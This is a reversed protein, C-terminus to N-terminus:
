KLVQGPCAPHLRACAPMASSNDSSSHLTISGWKGFRLCRGLRLPPRGGMSSRRARVPMRKTRRWPNGHPASGFSSPQPEPTLQQRRNTAQCAAPTHARTQRARSSASWRSSRSCHARTASSPEGTGAGLPPGLRTAIGGVSPFDAGLVVEHDILLAYREGCRERRRVRMIGLHHLRGQVRDGCHPASAAPGPLPGGLRGQVDMSSIIRLWLPKYQPIVRVGPDIAEAARRGSEVAAEISWVDAATKTHAGALFLNPISTTQGPLHPQTHTTTVWKPQLPEIGAPSFRWEHWVEVRDIGFDALSRGGNAERILRDLSKCSLIQAKVEEIFQEKTCRVVPTKYIRGPVTGVCSTGTWLSKVKGGLEVEPKWVQEEAFLTLNFESDTVVVATRERPFLILEPFPIRFSVQTHPGDQILPKFRRLEREDELAPTRAIIAAAAFPNTALVYRDATIEAGSQLRASAIRKGEYVFEVLSESWCFRVGGAVLQAVWKNFWYESSPGRLLLWGSGAGQTWAPGEEDARHSHTPKTILQKRFFQGAYHLSVRTWDSGIWPGFSSRWTKYCRVSLLPKFREAANQSAYAVETRRNAAWTKLM